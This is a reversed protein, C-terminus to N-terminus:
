ASRPPRPFLRPVRDIIQQYSPRRELSRKEMMPISAFEFMALMALFGLILWWWDEPAGAIGFLALSFWFSVEGFYNPHRSWAWLGRDMAQGPQRVRIFRRMQADSIFQITPAGIGIILAVIDLWNIERGPLTLVAYAPVLAAFVIVTPFVHIGMLDNFAEFRGTGRVGPYRWDEHHLGPWDQIWNATLRIAWVAIVILLLATRADSVDPDTAVIAWYGALFPPLVSWYPDYCSSNHLVRSGVFVGVTAILDAILGDLWLWETDPGWALWATALAFSIVYVIAVRTLSAGKSLV